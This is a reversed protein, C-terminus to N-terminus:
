CRGKRLKVQGGCLSQIVQPYMRHELRHIRKELSALGEGSGIRMRKQMIVSGHDMKEDVFHVTVGTFPAKHALADKIASAGKFAPLLSPHINIIRHRYKKVFGPSRMRMFGALAILNIKYYRLRQIIAAEFDGRNAFDGRNVLIVRVGSKRARELVFAKPNDCVLLLSAVRIRGKRSAKVIASFNSGNGSAFVALNVGASKEKGARELMM